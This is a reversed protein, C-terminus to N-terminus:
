NPLGRKEIKAWKGVSDSLIGHAFRPKLALKEVRSPKNEIDYEIADLEGKESQTPIQLYAKNVKGSEIIV